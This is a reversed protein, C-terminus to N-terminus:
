YQHNQLRYRPPKNNNNKPDDGHGSRGTEWGSGGKGNGRGGDNVNNGGNGNEGGTGTDEGRQEGLYSAQSSNIILFCFTVLCFSRSFIKFCTHM